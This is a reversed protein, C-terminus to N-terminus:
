MWMFWMCVCEKVGWGWGEGGCEVCGCVAWYGGLLGWVCGCRGDGLRGRWVCVGGVEDEVCVEGEWEECVCDVGTRMELNQRGVQIVVVGM